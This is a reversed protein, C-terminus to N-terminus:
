GEPNEAALHLLVCSGITPRGFKAALTLAAPHTSMEVLAFPRSQRHINVAKVKGADACRSAIIESLECDPKNLDIHLM